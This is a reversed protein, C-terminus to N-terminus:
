QAASHLAHLHPLPDKLRWTPRRLFWLVISLPQAHFLTKTMAVDAKPHNHLLSPAERFNFNTGAQSWCHLWNLFVKQENLIVDLYMEGAARHICLMRSNTRASEKAQVNRELRTCKPTQLELTKPPSRGPVQGCAGHNDQPLYIPGSGPKQTWVTRRDERRSRTTSNEEFPDHIGHWTEKVVSETHTYTKSGTRKMRM